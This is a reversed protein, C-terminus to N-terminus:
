WKTSPTHIRQQRSSSSTPSRGQVGGQSESRGARVAIRPRLAWGGSRAPHTGDDVQPLGCLSACAGEEAARQRPMASRALGAVSRLWLTQRHLHQRRGFGARGSPAPASGFTM